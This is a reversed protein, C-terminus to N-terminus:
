ARIGYYSSNKLTQAFIRAMGLSTFPEGTSFPEPQARTRSPVKVPLQKGETGLKNYVLSLADAIHDAGLGM